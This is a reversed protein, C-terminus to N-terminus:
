ASLQSKGAQKGAAARTKVPERGVLWREGREVLKCLVRDATMALIELRNYTASVWDMRGNRFASARASGPQQLQRRHHAAFMAPM